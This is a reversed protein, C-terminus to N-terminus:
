VQPLPALPASAPLVCAGRRRRRAWAVALVAVGLAACLAQAVTAGTASALAAPVTRAMLVNSAAVAPAATRSNYHRAAPNLEGSVGTDAAGGVSVLQGGYRLAIVPKLTDVVRVTRVYARSGLCAGDNWNGFSDQARYTVTYTGLRQVDVTSTTLVTCAAPSPPKAGRRGAPVCVGDRADHCIIGPDHYAFRAETTSPGPKLECWPCSTDVVRVARTIRRACVGGRSCCDYHVLYAGLKTRDVSAAGTVNVGGIDGYLPSICRAGADDYPQTRSAEITLIDDGVIRLIPRVHSMPTPAPTPAATPAATPVATPCPQTNCARQQQSECGPVITVALRQM